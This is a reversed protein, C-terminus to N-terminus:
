AAVNEKCLLEKTTDSEQTVFCYGIDSKISDRGLRSDHWTIEGTTDSIYIGPVFAGIHTLIHAELSRKLIDEVSNIVIEIDSVSYGDFIKGLEKFVQAKVSTIMPNEVGNGGAERM